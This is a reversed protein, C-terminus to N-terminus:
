DLCKDDGDPARVGLLRAARAATVKPATLEAWHSKVRATVEGRPRDFLERLVETQAATMYMGDTPQLVFASGTVSDDLRVRRLAAMPDSEWGLALWMVTVMRGDCMSTSAKEDGAVLVGAVAASFEPVRNGGWQTGVTVEHPRELPMLAGDGSLGYRAEVRQRVVVDQEQAGGGALSRVRDVVGAWDAVRPGWEPFACYTSGDRRVCSQVQEPHVTARERARALGASDGGAQAVGGVLTMAVAGAVGAVVVPKRGGAVLVAVLGACLALGALYLAHWAAPRGLLDSPLTNSTSEGVVPVLWRTVGDGAGTGFLFLFLFFVVTLPAALASRVLQAMLLGALGSLLVTLPGVLLEAVSGHGIAGPRLAEWGFQAAVCGATLLAVAVVSLAHAATRRWPPLVLVAFHQETGHRWSRLAARNVALLVALGVLMPASQTARDADQLAPYGGWAKGSRWVTWGLYVLFAIVVPLRTLLRRTEFLALAFVAARAGGAETEVAPRVPQEVVATM